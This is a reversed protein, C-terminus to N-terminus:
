LSDMFNEIDAHSVSKLSELKLEDSKEPHSMILEKREESLLYNGFKVLDTKNFYTVM